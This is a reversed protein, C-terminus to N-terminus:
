QGKPLEGSTGPSEIEGRMQARIQELRASAQFDRSASEIEAMTSNVGTDALEAAGLATAYRQEIKERVGELTPVSDDPGMASLQQMARNSQEQMKAQDAQAMLQSVQSLQEQLRAESKAVQAKAQEVVQAQQAHLAKTEELQQEVSVLQTAFSEAAQGFQQAKVTDGQAAAQDSMQIAQRAQSQLQDQEKILRDLKMELQRQNGIVASAQNVIARHQEKAANAAQQIQVKPDANKDIASDFSAMLYKWGKSFPNAM